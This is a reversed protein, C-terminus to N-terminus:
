IGTHIFPVRFALPVKSKEMDWLTLQLAKAAQTPDPDEGDKMLHRYLAKTARLAAADAVSWMTAVVSRAGAFQIGGALHISEDPLAVDGASTLCASLMAFQVHTLDLRMLKSLSLPNDHLFFCSNFPYVDDQDAHCAFHLWTKELIAKSAKYVTADENLLVTMKESADPLGELQERIAKIEKESGPLPCHGPTESLGVALLDFPQTESKSARILSRLTPTYSCALLDPLNPQEDEYPGAAHIPLFALAGTPCWWIRDKM